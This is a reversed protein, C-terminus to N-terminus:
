DDCGQSISPDIKASQPQDKGIGYHDMYIAFREHVQDRTLGLSDDSYVHRGHAGQPNAGHWARLAQEGEDSLDQDFDAYIKKVTGIPDAMFDPFHLDYFRARPFEARIPIAREAADSWSEMETRAIDRRDADGEFFTRYSAVMNTYSRMVTWPDRHTQIVCADPYVTLLARLQRLHVPYKLLWRKERDTSGILKV